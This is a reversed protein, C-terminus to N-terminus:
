CSCCHCGKGHLWLKSEDTANFIKQKQENPIRNQRVYTLPFTKSM